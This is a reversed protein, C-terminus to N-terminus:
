RGRTVSRVKGSISDYRVTVLDAIKYPEVPGEIEEVRIPHIGAGVWYTTAFDRSEAIIVSEVGDPGHAIYVKM